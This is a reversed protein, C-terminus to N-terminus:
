FDKFDDENMPIMDDPKVEKAQNRRAAPSGAENGPGSLRPTREHYESTKSQKTEKDRGHKSDESSGGVLSQLEGVSSRMNEAQANLEESASASEEATAASSQVVKDMQTMAQNVQDIGQAQENSAAAIEGVLEGVKKSSETVKAFEDSTKSVLDSGHGVSKVTGEILDNTNKAADAARMALNRVEDAVVAFGAGAEGARAAEVAANLALLNTQFAIEDITKIIKSTEESAKSIDEMSATVETMSENARSVVQNAENMLNDAQGANEANQKTMSSMEELSSSTEELAAAQESAGEALQQSSSSVQGSASAVEDAGGNIQNSIRQLVSIIGRAIFFALVIGILIAGISVVTTYLKTSQAADLMVEDTMIYKKAEARTDNLLKQTAQLAPLSEHAYVANAKEVGELLHNATAGVKHLVDSTEALAPVTKSAYIERADDQAKGLATEVQIAGKFHEVVEKLAPLTETRYLMEAETRNGIRLATEIEVASAHLRNHPEKVAEIAAKFEPFGRMWEKAQESSLFVGFACKAPDVQVGLDQKGEILGESVKAAWERHDDLIDKLTHRLGPHVQKYVKQIEVASQHLKRHPEKMAEILGALEPHGEAAKKAGEGHLWIGLGCKHDDTEVKLESLNDMFLENIKAVWVQHEVEKTALFGPLHTDAQQFHKGIEIASEHLKRHPEEIERLLPALSPVMVEAEKRGEGYLWIGFACKHDDTEVDLTIVEDDTLLANVQNAWNLHDVEKQALNADLKNGDIVQGADTVIGGVGTYSMVGVVALLILVVGFGVAIRKGFTMNTWSM